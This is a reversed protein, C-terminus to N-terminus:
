SQLQKKSQTAYLMEKESFIGSFAAKTLKQIHAQIGVLIRLYAFSFSRPQERTSQESTSLSTQVTRVSFTLILIAANDEFVEALFPSTPKIKKLIFLVFKSYVNSPQM